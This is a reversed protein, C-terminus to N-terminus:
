ITRFCAIVARPVFSPCTLHGNAYTDLIPGRDLRIIQYHQPTREHIRDPFLDYCCNSALRRPFLQFRRAIFICPVFRLPYPPPFLRSHSRYLVVLLSFLFASIIFPIPFFVRACVRAPEPMFGWIEDAVFAAHM